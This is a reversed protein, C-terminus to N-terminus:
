PGPEPAANDNVTHDPLPIDVTRAATPRNPRINPTPTCWPCTPVTLNKHERVHVAQRCTCPTLAPTAPATVPVTPPQSTDPWIWPHLVTHDIDPQCAPCRAASDGTHTLAAPAQLLHRVQLAVPHIATEDSLAAQAHADLGAAWTLLRGIADSQHQTGDVM